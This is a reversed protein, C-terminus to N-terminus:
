LAAVQNKIKINRQENSKELNNINIKEIITRDKEWYPLYIINFNSFLSNLIIGCSVYAINKQMFIFFRGLVTNEYSHTFNNYM